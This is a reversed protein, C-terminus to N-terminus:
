KEKGNSGLGLYRREWRVGGCANVVVTLGVGDRSSGRCRFEMVMQTHTDAGTGERGGSTRTVTPPEGFIKATTPRM